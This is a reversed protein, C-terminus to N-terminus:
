VSPWPFSLNPHQACKPPVALQSYLGALGLPHFLYGVCAVSFAAWAIPGPSSTPLKCGPRAASM